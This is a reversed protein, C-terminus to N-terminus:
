PAEEAPPAPMLEPEDTPADLTLEAAATKDAEATESAPPDADLADLAAAYANFGADTVFVFRILTPAGQEYLWDRCTKLAIPAAEDLPYGFLGTSISPFAVSQFGSDRAITLCSTYVDALIKAEGQAGNQYIPGVAHIVWRAPLRFGPTLVAKGPLCPALARSARVLERGAAHHIAGDVGGGGGLSSNAANVVADTTQKTIDGYVLELTAGSITIAKRTSQDNKMLSSGDAEEGIHIQDALPDQIEVDDLLEITTDLSADGSEIEISDLLTQSPPPVADDPGRLHAVDGHHFVQRLNTPPAALSFSQGTRTNILLTAADDMDPLKTEGGTLDDIQRQLIEGLEEAAAPIIVPFHTAGVEVILLLALAGLTGEGALAIDDLTVSLSDPSWYYLDELPDVQNEALTRRPDLVGRRPYYFHIGPTPGHFVRGITLGDPGVALKRAVWLTQALDTLSADPPMTVAFRRLAPPDTLTLDLPTSLPNM